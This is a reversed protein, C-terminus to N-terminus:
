TRSQSCGLVHHWEQAAQSVVQLWVPMLELFKNQQLQNLAMEELLVGGVSMPVKARNSDRELMAADWLKLSLKSGGSLFEYAAQVQNPITVKYVTEGPTLWDGRYSLWNHSGCLHVAIEVIREHSDGLWFVQVAPL